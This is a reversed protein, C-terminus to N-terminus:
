KAVGGTKKTLGVLSMGFGAIAMVLRVHHLRCFRRATEAVDGDSSTRLKEIDEGLVLFTYPAIAFLVAGSALWQRDRTAHWTAGQFATTALLLPMMLDRGYPWWVRFHARVLGANGNTTAASAVTTENTENNNDSSSTGDSGTGDDSLHALFARTDVFSVFTLCGTVIGAFGTALIATLATADLFSSPPSSPRM